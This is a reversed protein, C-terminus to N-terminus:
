ERIDKINIEYVSMVESIMVGHKNDRCSNRNLLFM